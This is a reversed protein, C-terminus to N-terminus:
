KNNTPCNVHASCTLCRGHFWMVVFNCVYFVCRNIVYRDFHEIAETDGNSTMAEISLKEVSRNIKKVDGIVEKLIKEKSSTRELGSNLFRHLQEEIRSVRVEM